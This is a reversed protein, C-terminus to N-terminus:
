APFQRITGFQSSVTGMTEATYLLQHQYASELTSLLLYILLFAEYWRHLKKGGFILSKLGKLVTRRHRDILQNMMYDLQYNIYPPCTIRKCRNSNHGNVPPLQIAFESDQIRLRRAAFERVKLVSRILPNDFKRSYRNAEAITLALIKDPITELILAELAPQCDNLFAETSEFAKEIDYKTM